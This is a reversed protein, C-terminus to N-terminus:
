GMQRIKGIIVDEFIEMRKEYDLSQAPDVEERQENHDAGGSGSDISQIHPTSTPM